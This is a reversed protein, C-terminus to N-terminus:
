TIITDVPGQWPGPIGGKNARVRFYYRLGPTLDNAITNAINTSPLATWEVAPDGPPTTTHQWEYSASRESETRLLAQGDIATNRVEFTRGTNAGSAKVGMNASFIIAEGNEHDENATFEVYGALYNMETIVKFVLPLVAATDDKSSDVEQSAQWATDVANIDTTVDDLSIPPSPFNPNATMASVVARVYDIFAPVSLSGLGLTVIWRLM